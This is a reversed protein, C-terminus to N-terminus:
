DGLLSNHASTGSFNITTVGFANIIPLLQEQFTSWGTQRAFIIDRPRIAVLGGTDPTQGNFEFVELESGHPRLLYLHERDAGNAFGRAQSFAEYLTMPRTLKYAGPQAVQGLVYYERSQWELVSLAVSPERLYRRFGAQIAAQATQVDSDAVQVPGIMPINLFGGTDVRWGSVPSSFEPHGTVTVVVVDNPGLAMVSWDLQTDLTVHSTTSEPRGPASCAGLAILFCLLSRSVAKSM